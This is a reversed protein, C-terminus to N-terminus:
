ESVKEEEEQPHCDCNVYDTETRGPLQERRASLNSSPSPPSSPSVNVTSGGDLLPWTGESHLLSLLGQCRVARLALTGSTIPTVKCADSM